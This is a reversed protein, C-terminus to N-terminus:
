TGLELHSTTPSDTRNLLMILDFLARGIYLLPSLTIAATFRIGRSLVQVLQPAVRINSQQKTKRTLGGTLFVYKKSFITLSLSSCFHYTWYLYLDCESKKQIAFHRPVSTTMIYYHTTSGEGKQVSRVSCWVCKQSRVYTAVIFGFLIM